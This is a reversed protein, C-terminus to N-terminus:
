SMGIKDEISEEPSCNLNTHTPSPDGADYEFCDMMSEMQQVAAVAPNHSLQNSTCKSNSTGHKPSKSPLKSPDEQVIVFTSPQLKTKSNNASKDRGRSRACKCKNCVCTCDVRAKSSLGYPICCVCLCIHKDCVQSCNPTKNEKARAQKNM